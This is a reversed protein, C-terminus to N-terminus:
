GSAKHLQGWPGLDLNLSQIEVLIGTNKETKEKSQKM